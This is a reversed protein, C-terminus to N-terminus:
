KKHLGGFYSVVAEIDKIKIKLVRFLFYLFYYETEMFWKLSSGFIRRWCWLKDSRSIKLLYRAIKKM